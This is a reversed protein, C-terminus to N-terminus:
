ATSKPCSFSVRVDGTKIENGCPNGSVGAGKLLWQFNIVPGCFQLNSNLNLASLLFEEFLGKM